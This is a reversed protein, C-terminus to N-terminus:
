LAGGVVYLATAATSASQGERYLRQQAPDWPVDRQANARSLQDADSSASAGAGLGGAVAAVGVAAVAVAGWLKWRWHRPPAAPAIAAPSPPSSAAAAAAAAAESRRREEVAADLAAQNERILVEVDARN